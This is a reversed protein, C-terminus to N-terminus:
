RPLYTTYEKLLATLEAPLDATIALDEASSFAGVMDRVDMIRKLHEAPLGPIRSIAEAPAHNIDILGGDDYSRILDPRGIGLERALDPDRDAIARARTRMQRHRRALKVANKNGKKWRDDGTEPFDFVQERIAAAHGAAVIAAVILCLVWVTHQYTGVPASATVFEIVAVATYLGTALYLSISRIRIAAYMFVLPALYGTSALPLFAWVTQVVQRTSTTM